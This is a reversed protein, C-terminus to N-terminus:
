GYGKYAVFIGFAGWVMGAIRTMTPQNMFADGIKKVAQGAIIRSAGSLFFAWGFITIVVRWDWVWINHTNIISLGALMALIGSVFILPGDELFRETTEQLRKPATVMHISLVIIVPGLLKAIWISM